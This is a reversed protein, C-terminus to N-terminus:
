GQCSSILCHHTHQITWSKTARAGTGKFHLATMHARVSSTLTNAYTSRLRRVTDFTQKNKSYYGPEVSAQLIPYNPTIGLDNLLHIGKRMGTIVLDVTSQARVWFIDLNTRCIYTMLRQDSASVPDPNRNHLNQVWYLEHQFPACLWIRNRAVLCKDLDTQQRFIVGQNNTPTVQPFMLDQEMRYFKACWTKQCPVCHGRSSGFNACCIEKPAQTRGWVRCMNREMGLLAPARSIQWPRSPLFPVCIGLLLPEHCNSPWYAQGALIELVINVRKHM